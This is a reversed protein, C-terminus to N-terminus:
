IKRKIAAGWEKSPKIRLSESFKELLVPMTKALAKGYVMSYKTILGDMLEDFKNPEMKKIKEEGKIELNKEIKIKYNKFVENALTIAVNGSIVFFAEVIGKVLKVRLREKTEQLKKGSIACYIEDVELLLKGEEVPKIYGKFQWGKMKDINISSVFLSKGKEEFKSYACALLTARGKIEKDSEILLKNKDKVNVKKVPIVYPKGNEVFALYHLRFPFNSSFNKNFNNELLDKMEETINIERKIGSLEDKMRKEMLEKVINAEDPLM